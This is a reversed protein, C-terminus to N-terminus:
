IIQRFVVEEESGDGHHETWYQRLANDARAVRESLLRQSRYFEESKSRLEIFAGHYEKYLAVEQRYFGLQRQLYHFDHEQGISRKSAQLNGPQNELTTTMIGRTQAEIDVATLNQEGSMSGKKNPDDPSRAQTDQSHLRLPAPVTGELEQIAAFPDGPTPPRVSRVKRGGTRQPTPCDKFTVSPHDRQDAQPVYRIPRLYPSQEATRPSDPDRLVQIVPRTTARKPRTISLM